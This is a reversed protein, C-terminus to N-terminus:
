RLEAIMEERGIVGLDAGAFVAPHQLPDAAIHVVLGNGAGHREIAIPIRLPAIVIVRRVPALEAVPLASPQEFFDLAVHVHLSLQRTMGLSALSRSRNRMSC